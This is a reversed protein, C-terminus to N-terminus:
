HNPSRWKSQDSGTVVSNLSAAPFTSVSPHPPQPAQLIDACVAAASDLCAACGGERRRQDHKWFHSNEIEPATTRISPQVKRAIANSIHFLIMMFKDLTNEFCKASESQQAAAFVFTTSEIFKVFLRMYMCLKQGRPDLPEIEIAEASARRVPICDSSRLHKIQGRYVARWGLLKQENCRDTPQLLVCEALVSGFGSYAFSSIMVAFLCKSRIDRQRLM